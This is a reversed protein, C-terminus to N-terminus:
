RMFAVVKPFINSLVFYTNQNETCRKDSVGRIRLLISRPIITLTRQDEHLIGTM